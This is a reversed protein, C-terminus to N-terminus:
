PLLKVILPVILKPPCASPKSIAVIAALSVSYVVSNSSAEAAALIQNASSKLEPILTEAFVATYLPGDFV